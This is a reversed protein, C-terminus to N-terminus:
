IMWSRPPCSTLPNRFKRSGFAQSAVSEAMETAKNESWGSFIRDLTGKGERVRDVARDVAADVVGDLGLDTWNDEVIKAVDLGSKERELLSRTIRNLESLLLEEEVHECEPFTYTQSTDQAKVTASPLVTALVLLALLLKAVCRIRAVSELYFLAIRRSTDRFSLSNVKSAIVLDPSDTFKM